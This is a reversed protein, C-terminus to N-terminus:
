NPSNTIAASVRFVVALFEVIIRSYIIWLFMGAAGLLVALLGDATSTKFGDFAFWVAVILGILLHVSYILKLMRPTVMSQFSFDLLAELLTKERAVQGEVYQPISAM